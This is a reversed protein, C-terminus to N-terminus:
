TTRRNDILKFGVGHYNIIQVCSDKKLYKRLRSIFVDLSRGMFYDDDGWINRLIEERKIVHGINLLLLRLVEAEKQTLNKEHNDNKLALNSYDFVFSGVVFTRENRIHQRGSSRRLFVELRCLLENMNFPKTIYDDAGSRFGELRDEIMAKATLFLIPIDGNVSRITRALSFGDKKPLMVDLICIDFTNELFAKSGSEGDACLVVDFGNQSLNDNMIFGLSADDEVILIKRKSM